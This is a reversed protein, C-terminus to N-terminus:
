VAAYAAVTMQKKKGSQDGTLSMTADVAAKLYRTFFETSSLGKAEGVNPDYFAVKGDAGMFAAMAHSGSSIYHYHGKKFGSKMGKFAYPFSASGNTTCVGRLATAVNNQAYHSPTVDTASGALSQNEARKTTMLETRVTILKDILDDGRAHYKIWEMALGACVGLWFYSDIGAGGMGGWLMSHQSANRVTGGYQGAANIFEIKYLYM